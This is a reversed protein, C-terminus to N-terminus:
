NNKSETNKQKRRKFLIILILVLVGFLVLTSTLRQKQILKKSYGSSISLGKGEIGRELLMRMLLNTIDTETYDFYNSESLLFQIIELPKSFMKRDTNNLLSDLDGSTYKLMETIFDDINEIGIMRLLLDYVEGKSYGKITSYNLLDEVIEILESTKGEWFLELEQVDRKLEGTAFEALTERFLTINRNEEKLAKELEGVLIDHDIRGKDAQAFLYEILDISNKINVENFVIESLIPKLETGASILLNNFYQNLGRTSVSLDLVDSAQKLDVSLFLEKQIAEFDDFVHASKAISDKDSFSLIYQFLEENSFVVPVIEILKSDIIQFQDANYEKLKKVIVIPLENQQIITNGENLKELDLVTSLEHIFEDKNRQTLLVSFLEHIDNSSYANESSNEVLKNYLELFSNFELNELTTFYEKLDKSSIIAFEDLAMPIEKIEDEEALPEDKVDPQYYVNVEQQKINGFENRLTFIIKNLGEEPTFKYAFNEKSVRYEEKKTLKNNVFLEVFLDDGKEVILKIIVPVSDVNVFDSGVVQIDPLESPTTLLKDDGIAAFQATIVPLEIRDNEQLLNLSVPVSIPNIGEGDVLLQYDGQKAGISFEGTSELDVQNVLRGTSNEIISIFIGGNELYDPTPVNINGTIIFERPLVSNYVTVFYIDKLGYSSNADFMSYVATSTKDPSPCFFLDDDTTNLPFGLNVPSSWSDPAIQESIYIDYGGMGGHRLSSFYLKQDNASIFPTEENFPSNVVPGLNEPSEWNKGNTRSARYIDLGGYGGRRNSTFYLFKGEPGPSAHSEWYKTNISENLKELMQWKSDAKISSYINGDFNDSRYVFIEDGTYSIGTCYSNGDLGFDPTLNIPESWNGENNKTSIFIADYFQLKRNFIITKGDGSIVPFVEEFRSNLMNEANRKKFYVPSLKQKIAYNCAEIEDNVIEIDFVEPDLESSFLTFYKLANELESNVRYAQALYFYVEPPALRERHNNTKYNKDNIGKSAELLYNISKQKQYPDNLYCIGIKYKLNLNEPDERLLRQYIPLADKYEEFLFFAEAEVFQQKFDIEKQAHIQSIFSLLLFFVIFRKRFAKM